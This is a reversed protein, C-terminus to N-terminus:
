RWPGTIDFALAAGVTLDSNNQQVLLVMMKRPIDSGEVYCNPIIDRNAFPTLQTIFYQGPLVGRLDNRAFDCIYRKMFRVSFDPGNPFPLGATRNSIVAAGRYHVHHLSFNTYTGLGTYNTPLFMGAGTNSNGHAVDDGYGPYETGNAAVRFDTCILFHNLNDNPTYSEYEGFGYTSGGYGPTQLANIVFYFASDDGVVSWTRAGTGGSGTVAAGSVTNHSQRWRAWGDMATTGTGRVEYNKTPDAPDFPVPNSTVTDVDTMAAAMTVHASIAYTSNWGSLLRNDVRLYPRTGFLNKSRYVRRQTGTFAIDYGLPPVRSTITGTATGVTPTTTVVYSFTDTTMSEVRWEGNFEDQDAGAVEIVQDIMYGHAAKIATVRTGVISLSTVATWPSGNALVYDLVAVTEGYQNTIQPMGPMTNHYYKVPIKNAM